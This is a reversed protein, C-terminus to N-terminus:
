NIYLIDFLTNLYANFRLDGVPGPLYKIDSIFEEKNVSIYLGFSRPSEKSTVTTMVRIQKAKEALQLLEDLTLDTGFPNTADVM